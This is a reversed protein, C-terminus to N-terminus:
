QLVLASQATFLTFGGHPYDELSAWNTTLQSYTGLHLQLVPANSCWRLSWVMLPFYPLPPRPAPPTCACPLISYLLVGKVRENSTILSILRVVCM